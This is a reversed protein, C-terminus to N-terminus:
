SDDVRVIKGEQVGRVMTKAGFAIIIIGTLVLIVSDLAVYGLSSPIDYSRTVPIVIGAFNISTHFVIAALISGNTNNHFWTFSIALLIAM